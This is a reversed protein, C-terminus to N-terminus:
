IIRIEGPAHYSERHNSQYDREIQNYDKCLEMWEPFHDPINWRLGKSELFERRSELLLTVKTRAEQLKTQIDRAPQLAAWLIRFSLGVVVPIMIYLIIKMNETALYVLPISLAGGISVVCFLFILFSFTKVAKRWPKLYNQVREFFREIDKISLKYDTMEPKYETLDFHGRFNHYKFIIRDNDTNPIVFPETADVM